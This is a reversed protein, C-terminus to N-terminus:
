GLSIPISQLYGCVELTEHDCKYVDLEYFQPVTVARLRQHLKELMHDVM